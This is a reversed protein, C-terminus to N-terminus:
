SYDFDCAVRGKVVSISQPYTGAAAFLRMGVASGQASRVKFSTSDATEELEVVEGGSFALRPVSLDLDNVDYLLADEGPELIYHRHVSMMPDLLDVYRGTLMNQTEFSHAAVINGRKVWMLKTDDYAYPAGECAIEALVRMAESGKESQAYMASPAGVVLVHGKGANAAFALTKGDSLTLLPDVDGEFTVTYNLYADAIGTEAASDKKREGHWTLTGDGFGEPHEAKVDLELKDLLAQLPSGYAAWWKYSIGDYRDRGGVYLLQGGALVWEAIADVVDESQPKQCDFSVILM